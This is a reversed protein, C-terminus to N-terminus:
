IYTFFVRMYVHMIYTKFHKLNYIIRVFSDSNHGVSNNVFKCSM